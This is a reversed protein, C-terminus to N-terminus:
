GMTTRTWTWCPKQPPARTIFHLTPPTTTYDVRTVCSPDWKLADELASAVSQARFAMKPVPYFDPMEQPAQLPNGATIGRQLIDLLLAGLDRANYLVFARDGELLPSEMLGQYIGTATYAYTRTRYSYTRKCIGTFHTAGSDDRLTVWQGDDPIPQGTEPRLSFTLEDGDLSRTKLTAQYIGLVEFPYGELGLTKGSQGHLYFPPSFIM